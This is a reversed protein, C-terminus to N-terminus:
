GGSGFMHHHHSNLVFMKILYKIKMEFTIGKGLKEESFDRIREERERSVLGGVGVEQGQCEGIIPCLVKLPGIAEGGMSSRSSWGKSCICSSDLTGGHTKKSQHNLEWPVRPITTLEYQQEESPAVFRKLGKPVRELEKM